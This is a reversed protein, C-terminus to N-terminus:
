TLKKSLVEKQVPFRLRDLSSEQLKGKHFDSTKLNKVIKEWFHWNM